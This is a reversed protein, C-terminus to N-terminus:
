PHFSDTRGPASGKLPEPELRVPEPEPKFFGAIARKIPEPAIKAISVLVKSARELTRKLVSVENRLRANEDSLTENEAGLSALNLRLRASENEAAAVKERWVEDRAALAEAQAVAAKEKEKAIVVAAKKKVENGGEAKGNEHAARVIKKRDRWPLDRVSGWEKVAESKAAKVIEVAQKKANGVVAEAEPRFVSHHVHERGTEEKSRGREIKSDLNSQCHASWQEQLRRFNRGRGFAVELGANASVQKKTKGRQKYETVPVVIVDVVGSGAEDVDLRTHIVSGAGFKDEMFARASDFLAVNRPNHPDHVDGAAAIWEPSVGLLMHVALSAGKRESAGADRKRAKFAEVISLPDVGPYGSVPNLHTLTKNIHKSNDQRKAHKEAAVLGAINKIKHCRAFAYIM